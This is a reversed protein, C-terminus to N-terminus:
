HIMQPGSSTSKQDNAGESQAHRESTTGWITFVQVMMGRAISFPLVGASIKWPSLALDAEAAAAPTLVELDPISEGERQPEKVESM